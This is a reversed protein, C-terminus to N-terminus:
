RLQFSYLRSNEGGKPAGVSKHGQYDGIADLGQQAVPTM